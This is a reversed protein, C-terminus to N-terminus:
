RGEGGVVGAVALDDGCDGADHDISKFIHLLFGNKCLKRVHPFCTYCFSEEGIFSRSVFTSSILCSASMLRAKFCAVGVSVSSAGAVFILSLSTMPVCMRNSTLRATTWWSM